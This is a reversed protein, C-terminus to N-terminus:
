PGCTVVRVLGLGLSELHRAAAEAAGRDRALGFYASGSGSMLHGQLFAPGLDRLADRVPCLAPELAEAVAQLRNFMSRGLDAVDGAKLADLAPAIPRTPGSVVLERYVRATSMGQPPVMLVFHLPGGLPVAEMREGRGRGVAAPGHAFFAVDSGLEGALADLRTPPLDLEWLQNLAVLTAMADSSGGGLGAQAPVEKHLAITAGLTCGTEARLREAARVVLNRGDTPLTPDDCSLTIAGSPDLRLDLTDSLDVTVMLTEVEHYGDPRRGLVELFLNLKAPAQVQLGAGRPRVSM